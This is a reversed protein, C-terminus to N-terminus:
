ELQAVGIAAHIDSLRFNVGQTHDSWRVLVGFAAPLTGIARLNRDAVSAPYSAPILGVPASM